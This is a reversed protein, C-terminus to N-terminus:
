SAATVASNVQTAAWRLDPDCAEISISRPGMHWGFVSGVTENWTVEFWARSAQVPGVQLRRAYRVFGAIDKFQDMGLMLAPEPLLAPPIPRAPAYPAAVIAAIDVPLRAHYSGDEILSCLARQHPHTGAVIQDAQLQMQALGDPHARLLVLDYIPHRHFTQLVHHIIADRPLFLGMPDLMTAPGSVFRRFNHFVWPISQSRYFVRTEEAACLIMQDRAAVLLQSVTALGDVHGLERLRQLRARVVSPRLLASMLAYLQVIKDWNQRWGGIVDLLLAVRSKGLWVPPTASQRAAMGSDANM